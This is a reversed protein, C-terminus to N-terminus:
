ASREIGFADRVFRQGLEPDAEDLKAGDGHALHAAVRRDLANGLLFGDHVRIAVGISACVSDGLPQAFARPMAQRM